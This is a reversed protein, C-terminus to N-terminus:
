GMVCVSSRTKKYNPMLRSVHHSFHCICPSLNVIQNMEILRTYHSIRDNGQEKFNVYLWKLTAFLRAVNVFREENEEGKNVGWLWWNLFQKSPELFSPSNNVFWKKKMGKVRAVPKPNMAKDNLVWALLPLITVFIMWEKVRTTIWLGRHAVIFM